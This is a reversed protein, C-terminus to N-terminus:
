TTVVTLRPHTISPLLDVALRRFSVGGILALALFLMCIAIPRQIALRFV